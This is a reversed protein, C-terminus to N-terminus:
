RCSSLIHDNHIGELMAAVSPTPAALIFISPIARQHSDGWAFARRRRRWAELYAGGAELIFDQQEDEEEEKEIIGEEGEEKCM